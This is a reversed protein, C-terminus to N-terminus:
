TAQRIQVKLADGKAHRMCMIGRIKVFVKHAEVVFAHKSAINQRLQLKRVVHQAPFLRLRIQHVPKDVQDAAGPRLSLGAADARRMFVGRDTEGAARYKRPFVALLGDHIAVARILSKEAKLRAAIVRHFQKVGPIKVARECANRDIHWTRRLHELQVPKQRRVVPAKDTGIQLLRKAINENQREAPRRAVKRRYIQHLDAFMVALFKAEPTTLCLLYLTIKVHLRNTRANGSPNRLSNQATVM